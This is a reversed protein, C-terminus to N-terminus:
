KLAFYVDKKFFYIFKGDCKRVYKTITSFRWHAAGHHARPQDGPLISWDYCQLQSLPGILACWHPYHVLSLAGAGAGAGAVVAWVLCASGCIDADCLYGGM